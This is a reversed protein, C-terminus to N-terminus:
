TVSVPVNRAICSIPKQPRCLAMILSYGNWETRFKNLLLPFDINEKEFYDSVEQAMELCTAYSKTGSTAQFAKEIANAIKNIDFFAVRGDRKTITTIM